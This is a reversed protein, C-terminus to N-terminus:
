FLSCFASYQWIDTILDNTEILFPKISNICDTIEKSQYQFQHKQKKERTVIANNVHILLQAQLWISHTHEGGGVLTSFDRCAM